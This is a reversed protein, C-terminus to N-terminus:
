CGECDRPVHGVLGALPVARMHAASVAAPPAGGKKGRKSSKGPAATSVLYSAVLLIKAVLPLEPMEDRMKRQQKQVEQSWSRYRNLLQRSDQPQLERQIVPQWYVAWREKVYRACEAVTFTAVDFLPDDLVYKTFARRSEEYAPEVAPVDRLVVALLEEKSFQPVHVAIVETHLCAVSEPPSCAIIVMTVSVSDCM